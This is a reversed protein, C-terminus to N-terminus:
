FNIITKVLAMFGIDITGLILGALVVTVIVVITGLRTEKQSPWSVLALEHVADTVFDHSKQNNRLLVFTLLALVLPLGIQIVDAADGLKRTLGWTGSAMEWYHGAMLWVLAAAAFFLANVHKQYKQM